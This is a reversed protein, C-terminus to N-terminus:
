RRETVPGSIAQEAAVYNHNGLAERAARIRGILPDSGPGVGRTADRDLRRTEARELAEQAEGSRHQAIARRAVDLFAEAGANPSLRPVPLSPAIISRTDSPLINSALPSMPLSEGVGPIHGPRAGTAPNMAGAHMHPPPMAAGPPAAGYDQAFAPVALALGMLAATTLLTTRM